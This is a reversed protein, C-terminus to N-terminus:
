FFTDKSSIEIDITKFVAIVAKVDSAMEKLNTFISIIALKIELFDDKINGCFRKYFRTTGNKKNASKFNILYPRIKKHEAKVM